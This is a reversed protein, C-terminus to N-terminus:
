QIPGKSFRNFLSFIFFLIGMIGVVFQGMPFDYANALVLGLGAAGLAFSPTFWLTQKFRRCILRVSLVPLILCGFCYLIGGIRICFGLVAGLFLATSFDWVRLQRQGHTVEFMERDLLYLPLRRRYRLIAFLCTLLFGGLIAIDADNAGFLNSALVRHVEELGFPNKAVILIALSSATLFIWGIIGESFLPDKNLFTTTLSATIAAAMALGTLLGTAHTSAYELNFHTQLFLGTAIGLMSCQSIAVGLFVQQRAVVVLGLTSLLAAILLACVYTQWFLDCSQLFAHMVSMM